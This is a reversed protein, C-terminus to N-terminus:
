PRTTVCRDAEVDECSVIRRKRREPEMGGDLARNRRLMEVVFSSMSQATKGGGFLGGAIWAALDVMATAEKGWSFNCVM